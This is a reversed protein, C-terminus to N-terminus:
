SRTSMCSWTSTPYNIACKVPAWIALRTWILGSKAVCVAEFWVARRGSLRRSLFAQGVWRSNSGMTWGVAMRQSVSRTTGSGPLVLAGSEPRPIWRWQQRSSERTGAGRPINILPLKRPWSNTRPHPFLLPLFSCHCTSM